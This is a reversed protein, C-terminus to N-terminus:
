AVPMGTPSIISTALKKVQSRKKRLFTTYADAMTMIINEKLTRHCLGRLTKELRSETNIGPMLPKGEILM